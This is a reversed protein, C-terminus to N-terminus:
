MKHRQFWIELMAPGLLVLITVVVAVTIWPAASYSWFGAGGLLSLTILGGLSRFVIRSFSSPGVDSCNMAKQMKDGRDVDALSQKSSCTVVDLDYIQCLRKAELTLGVDDTAIIVKGARDEELLEKAFGLLLQGTRSDTGLSDDLILPRAEHELVPEDYSSEQPPEMLSMVLEKVQQTHHEMEPHALIDRIESRVEHPLFHDVERGKPPQPYPHAASANLLYSADYLVVVRNKTTRLSTSGLMAQRGSFDMSRFKSQKKLDAIM